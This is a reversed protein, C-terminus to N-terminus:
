YNSNISIRIIVEKETSFKIKSNGRNILCESDRRTGYLEQLAEQKTGHAFLTIVSCKLEQYTNSFALYLTSCQPM